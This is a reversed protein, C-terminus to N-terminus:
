LTYARFDLAKKLVITMCSDQRSILIIYIPILQFKVRGHWKLNRITYKHSHLGISSFNLNISADCDFEEENGVTLVIPSWFFILWSSIIRWACLTQAINSSIDSLSGLAYREKMSLCRASPLSAMLGGCGWMHMAVLSVTRASENMACKQISTKNAPIGKRDIRGWHIWSASFSLGLSHAPPWGLTQHVQTDPCLRYLYPREAHGAAIIEIM